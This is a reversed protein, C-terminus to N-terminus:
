VQWVGAHLVTGMTSQEAQCTSDDVDFVDRPLFARTGCAAPRTHASVDRLPQSASRSESGGIYTHKDQHAGCRMCSKETDTCVALVESCQASYPICQQQYVSHAGICWIQSSSVGEGKTLFPGFQTLLVTIVKVLDGCTYCYREKIQQAVDMSLDGPVPEGRERHHACSVILPLAVRKAFGATLDPCQCLM